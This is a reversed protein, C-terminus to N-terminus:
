LDLVVVKHAIGHAGDFFEGVIEFGLREYFGIAEIRGHAWLVEVGERRLREIAADLLLRGAGGGRVDPDTAMGRLRAARRGPRLDTHEAFFTAIGVVLGDDAIAGLHFVGPMADAPGPSTNSLVRLRLDYTREAEIEEIRIM